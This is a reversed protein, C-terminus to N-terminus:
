ATYLAPAGGVRGQPVLTDGEITGQRETDEIVDNYREIPALLAAYPPLHIPDGCAVCEIPTGAEIRKLRVRYLCDCGRCRVQVFRIPM